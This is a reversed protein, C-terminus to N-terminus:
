SSFVTKTCLIISILGTKIFNHWSIVPTQNKESVTYDWIGVGPREGTTRDRCGVPAHRGLKPKPELAGCRLEVPLLLFVALCFESSERAAHGNTYCWVCLKRKWNTHAHVYNKAVFSYVIRTTLLSYKAGNLYFLNLLRFCIAHSSWLGKTIPANSVGLLMSRVWMSLISCQQQDFRVIMLASEAPFCQDNTERSELENLTVSLPMFQSAM